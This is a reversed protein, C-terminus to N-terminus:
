ALIVFNILFIMVSIQGSSSGYFIQDHLSLLITTFLHHLHASTLMVSAETLCQSWKGDDKLLGRALCAAHFSPHAESSNYRRLDEFLKAGKVVTLLTRLYFHEGGTPPIFYM